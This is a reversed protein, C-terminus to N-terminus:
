VEWGEINYLTEKIINIIDGIHFSWADKNGQIIRNYVKETFHERKCKSYFSEFDNEYIRDIDVYESFIYGIVSYNLLEKLTKDNSFAGGILTFYRFTVDFRIFPILNFQLCKFVIDLTQQIQSFTAFYFMEIENKISFSLPLQSDNFYKNLRMNLSLEIDYADSFILTDLAKKSMCKEIEDISSFTNKMIELSDIEKNLLKSIIDWYAKNILKMNDKQFSDFLIDVSIFIFEESYNKLIDITDMYADRFYSITHENIGDIGSAFFGRMRIIPDNLINMDGLAGFTYHGNEKVDLYIAGSLLFCKKDKTLDDLILSLQQKKSLWFAECKDVLAVVKSYFDIEIESINFDSILDFYERQIKSLDDMYKTM